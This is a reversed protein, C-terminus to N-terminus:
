EMTYRAEVTLCRWCLSFVIGTCQSEVDPLLDDKILAFEKLTSEWGTLCYPVVLEHCICNPNPCVRDEAPPPKLLPGGLQSFDPKRRTETPSGAFKLLKEQEEESLWDFREYRIITLLLEVDRPPAIVEIGAPALTSSECTFPSEEWEELDPRITEVRDDTAVRYITPEPRKFCYYLPFRRLEGFLERVGTQQRIAECDLDAILTLDCNCTVCTAGAHTAPGGARHPVDANDLRRVRMIGPLYYRDRWRDPVQEHRHPSNKVRERQADLAKREEEIYGGLGALGQQARSEFERKAEFDIGGIADALRYLTDALFTRM